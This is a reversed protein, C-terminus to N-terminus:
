FEVTNTITQEEEFVAVGGDTITVRLDASNAGKLTLDLTYHMNRQINYNNIMNDGLYFAYEVQIGDQTSGSSGDYKYTGKVVLKTCGDLSGGPGNTSLNKGEFTTSTGMGRLNEPMYFPKGGGGTEIDSIFVSDTVAKISDTHIGPYHGDRGGAAFLAMKTPACLLAVKDVKFTSVTDAPFLVRLTTKAYSRKLNTVFVIKDAGTSPTYSFPGATLLSSVAGYNAFNVTKKKLDAESNNVNTNTDNGFGDLVTGGNVIIYFRSTTNSFQVNQTNIEVLYGNNSSTFSSEDSIKKCHLLKGSSDYQVIWVDSIKIKEGGDPGIDVKTEVEIPDPLQLRFVFGGEGAPIKETSDDCATVLLCVLSMILVLSDYRRKMSIEKREKKGVEDMPLDQGTYDLLGITIDGPSLVGFFTLTFEFGYVMGKLLTKRSSATYTFTKTPYTTVEDVKEVYTVDLVIKFEIPTNGSVPLVVVPDAPHTVYYDPKNDFSSVVISDKKEYTTGEKKWDIAGLNYSLPSSLYYMTISQVKLDTVTVPSGLKAKVSLKVQSGLRVFPAPLTVNMVNDGTKEPQVTFGTLTNYMFDTGNDVTISGGDSLVPAINTNNSVM